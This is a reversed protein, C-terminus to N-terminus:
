ITPTEGLAWKLANRIGLAYVQEVLEADVSGARVEDLQRSVNELQARLDVTNRASM